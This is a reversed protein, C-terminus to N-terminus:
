SSSRAPAWARSSRTRARDAHGHPRARRHRRQLVGRPQGHSAARAIADGIDRGARREERFRSVILLSYDIGVALGMVTVINMAFVSVDFWAGMAVTLALRRAIAVVALALPIVAAVVAGFVLLLIVIAIPVGILEGRRLDSEALDRAEIGWTGGGTVAVSFGDRGDARRVRPRLASAVHEEADSANGALTVLILTAGGSESVLMKSTAAAADTSDAAAGAQAGDAGAVSVVGAVHDPGIAAIQGALDAVRREFAGGADGLRSTSSSM